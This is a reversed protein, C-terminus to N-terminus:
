SITFTVLLEQSPAIRSALPTALYRIFLLVFVLMVLGCIIVSDIQILVSNGAGAQARIGLASLIMMAPVVVWDQMTLFGMAIRGHLSDVERKDSLLKVTIITSSFTLAVAIYLSTVTDLGLTIGLM